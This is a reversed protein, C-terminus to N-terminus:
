GLRALLVRRATEWQAGDEVGAIEYTVGDVVVQDENHIEEDYELTLRRMARGQFRSAVLSEDVGGEPSLRCPIGQSLTEWSETFGGAGDETLTKRLVDCTGPLADVQTQRMGLLEAPTLM